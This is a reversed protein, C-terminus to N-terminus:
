QGVEVLNDRNSETEDIRVDNSRPAYIGDPGPSFYAFRGSQLVPSTTTSGSADPIGDVAEGVEMDWPRLRVWDSLSPAGDAVGDGDYDGPGLRVGPAGTAYPLRMYQIANGWPDAIVRPLTDDYGPDGPFLVRYQGTEPDQTGDTVGVADDGRLDLYPGYVRSPFGNEPRRAVGGDNGSLSLRREALEVGDGDVDPAGWFGGAGPSRIGLTPVEADDADGGFNEDPDFGFGDEVWTGYGLLYEAASTVSHRDYIEERWDDPSSARLVPDPLLIENRGGDLLPPHFGHDQEFSVTGQVLSQMLSVAQAKRAQGRAVNVAVVTLAALVAVIGLAVLLEVLTFGHRRPRRPNDPRDVAM